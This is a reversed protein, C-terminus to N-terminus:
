VGRRMRRHYIGVLAAGLPFAYVAAPLPIATGGGGNGNGDDGEIEVLYGARLVDAPPIILGDAPYGSNPADNWGGRRALAAADPSGDTTWLIAGSDEVSQANNPEGTSWNAFGISQGNVHEYVGETVERIGFWYSGTVAADALISEVFDQEGQSDITALDGGSAQAAARAADWSASNDLIVEYSNGNGVTSNWVVPAASAVSAGGLFLGTAAAAIVGPGRHSLPSSRHM